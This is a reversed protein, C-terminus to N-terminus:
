EGTPGNGRDQEKLREVEEQIRRETEAQEKAKKERSSRIADPLFAAATLGIIVVFAVALGAGTLFFRGLATLLPLRRVYRAVVDEAKIEPDNAPTNDGRTIFAEHDGVVRVVRHTNLAGGLEAFHFTIVDGVEITKPDVKEVLIYTKEDFGKEPEAENHMSNTMVWMITKGGVFVTKGSMRSVFLFVVFVAILGVLLYAAVNLVRRWVPVKPTTKEEANEM